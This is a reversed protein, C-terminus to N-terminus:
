GASVIRPLRGFFLTNGTPDRSQGNIVLLAAEQARVWAARERPLISGVPRTTWTFQGNQWVVGCITPRFRGSAIRNMVVHGVARQMLFNEGRAEHYITLAMCVLDRRDTEQLDQAQQSLSLQELLPAMKWENAQAHAAPAFLLMLAGVVACFAAKSSKL